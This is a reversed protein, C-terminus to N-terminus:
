GRHACQALTMAGTECVSTRMCSLPAAAFVHPISAAGDGWADVRRLSSLAICVPVSSACVKDPEAEVALASEIESPSPADRRCVVPAVTVHEKAEFPLCYKDLPCVEAPAQGEGAADTSTQGAPKTPTARKFFSLLQASQKEKKRLLQM